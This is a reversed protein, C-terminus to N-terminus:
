SAWAVLAAPSALWARAARADIGVHEFGPLIMAELAERVLPLRAHRPLCGHEPEDADCDAGPGLWAQWAIRVLTPLAGAIHARDAPTVRPSALHAWGIRAHDVDDRLLSRIVASAAPAASRRLNEQLYAAAIGENLCSHHVALLLRNIRPSADGFQVPDALAASPFTLARGAYLEAIAHCLRAHQVEDSPGRAALVLVEPAAGIELLARAVQTFVAATSLEAESRGRWHRAIAERREPALAAASPDDPLAVSKFGRM